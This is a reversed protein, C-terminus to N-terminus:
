PLVFIYAYIGDIYLTGANTSKRLHKILASKHLLIADFLGFILDFSFFIGQIGAHKLCPNVCVGMWGNVCVSM